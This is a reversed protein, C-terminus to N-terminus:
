DEFVIKLKNGVLDVETDEISKDMFDKPIKTRVFGYLFKESEAIKNSILVLDNIEDEINYKSTEIDKLKDILIAYFNYKEAEESTLDIKIIM